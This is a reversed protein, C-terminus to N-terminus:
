IKSSTHFLDDRVRKLSQSVVIISVSTQESQNVDLRVNKVSSRTRNVPACSDHYIHKAKKILKQYIQEKRSKKPKKGGNPKDISDKNKYAM